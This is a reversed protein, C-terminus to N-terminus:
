RGTPMPEWKWCMSGWPMASITSSATAAATTGTIESIASALQFAEIASLNGTGKGFLLRALAEDQPLPPVTTVQIKPASVRGSVELQGKIDGTDMTAVVDFRPDGHDAPVLEVNGTTITFRRGIIDLNGRVLNLKASVQPDDIMGAITIKGSWESELGRGHVRIKGPMDIIIDLNAKWPAVSAPPGTGLKDRFADQANLVTVSTPLSQAVNIDAEVTKFRGVIDGGAITGTFTLDGGAVLRADDRRVLHANALTLKADLILRGNQNFDAKGDVKISGSGGDNADVSVELEGERTSSADVLIDDIITGWELNEYRGNELRAQGQVKPDAAVGTVALAVDIDGSLLQNGVPLHQWLKAMDGKITIDAAVKQQPPVEVAGSAPDFTLPWEAKLAGTLGEIGAIDLAIKLRSDDWNADLSIQAEEEITAAPLRLGSGVFSAKADGDNPDIDFEATGDFQGQMLLEPDIMELFSLPVAEILMGGKIYDDGMAVNFSLTGGDITMTLKDTTIGDQDITVNLVKTTAVRHDGSVLELHALTVTSAADKMGITATTDFRWGEGSGGRAELTVDLADLGGRATFLAKDVTTMGVLDVGAFSGRVDLMPTAMADNVTAALALEGIGLGELSAQEIWTRAEVTQRGDQDATFTAEFVGAGDLAGLELADALKSLDSLQGAIRGDILTTALNIDLTGGGSIGPGTLRFDQVALHAFDADFVLRTQAALESDGHPLSVRLATSMGNSVDLERLDLVAGDLPLTDYAGRAVALRVDMVPAALPGKAVIGLTGSARLAPDVQAALAPTTQFPGSLRGELTGAVVDIDFDGTANWIPLDITAASVIVRDAGGSITVAIGPAEGTIADLMAQGTSLGSTELRLSGDASEGWAAIDLDGSVALMGTLDLGWLTSLPALPLDARLGSVRIAGDTTTLAIETELHGAALELEVLFLDVSEFDAGLTGRVALSPRAGLQANGLPDGIDPQTLALRAAISWGGDSLMSLNELDLRVSQAAMDQAEPKEVDLVGSLVPAQATGAVHGALTWETFRLPAALEALAATQRGSADFALDLAMADLGVTGSAKVSAPDVDLVVNNLTLQEGEMSVDADWTVADGVLAATQEDLLGGPHATGTTTLTMVDGDQRVSFRADADATEALVLSLTGDWDSVTGKAALTASFAPYPAIDLLHVLLGGEGEDLDANIALTNDGLDVDFRLAFRGSTSDLRDLDLVLTGAGASDLDAHGSLRYGAPTGLVSADIAITTIELRAVDIGIGPAQPLAFEADDAVAEDEPTAPTPLPERLVTVSGVSLDDIVVNGGILAWPNWDLAIGEIRLWVGDRDAVTVAGINVAAPLGPGLDEIGVEMEGPTSVAEIITATLWARVPASDIAIWLALVAVVPLAALAILIRWRWRM